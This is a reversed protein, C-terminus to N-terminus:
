TQLEANVLVVAVVSAGAIRADQARQLLVRLGEGRPVDVVNFDVAAVRVGFVHVSTRKLNEVNRKLRWKRMEEKICM